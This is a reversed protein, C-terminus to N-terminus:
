YVTWSPQELLELKIKRWFAINRENLECAETEVKSNIRFRFYNFSIKREVHIMHIIFNIKIDKPFRPLNKTLKVIKLTLRIQIIVM